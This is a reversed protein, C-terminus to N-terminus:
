SAEAVAKAPTIHVSFEQSPEFHFKGMVPPADAVVDWRYGLVLEEAFAASLDFAWDAGLCRHKDMGFPAYVDATLKENMFRNCDFRFPEAFNQPDHHAEWVCIRVHSREPIFYGDFVIDTTAQRILFESQEMRLAERAVADTPSLGSPGVSMDSRIRKVVDPAESLKKLVWYWLGHVDSRSAEAMQVLNGLATEDLTDSRVLHRLLSPPAAADTKLGEAQQMVLARIKQYLPKHHRRVVVFPGDPTYIDYTKVLDDYLPSDRAVGLILQIFNATTVAKFAKKIEPGAVPQPASALRDLCDRVDKRFRAIHPELPTERFANIILSRYKRHPEGELARLFGFPFLPTLDPTAVRINGENEALFRRAIKHGVICTTLKHPLWVKFVPGLQEARKLLFLQDSLREQGPLRLRGPALKAGKAKAGAAARALKLRMQINHWARDLNKEIHQM